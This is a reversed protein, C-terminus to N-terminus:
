GALDAYLALTAEQMDALRYHHLPSIAPAVHLLEAAREVLRTRDGPPVRGVPYLDALLEGVGGHDYGLM